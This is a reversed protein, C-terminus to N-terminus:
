WLYDAHALVVTTYAMTANDEWDLSFLLQM